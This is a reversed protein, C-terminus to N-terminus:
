GSSGGNDDKSELGSGSEEVLCPKAQHRNRGVIQLVVIGCAASLVSGALIGLKSAIMMEPSTFSLGSVFLSMTFGIGGLIAAGLMDKWEVSEPLSAMNLSVALAAFLMIGVPKGIFLGLAIGMTVPDTLSEVIPLGRVVLGANGLAFLPLIVFAVWPHISHEMRQLPTEVKECALKMDHVTDQYDPDMLISYWACVQMKPGKVRQMIRKVQNFFFEFDVKGRAPIMMAAAVGAVTPHVGSHFVALWLLFGLIAYPATSSVRFFNVVGMAILVCGALALALGNLESTYFLAIIVVAGLDDAIAFAALFIRLGVPLGKGLLALAGLAFAIDTAMPIAWGTMAPTGQNFLAYIFGPVIMGGLAAVVPLFAVRFVSLEGVLVERKIELGVLFFFFAMLGDNVWHLVSHPHCHQGLCISLTTHWFHHYTTSLFSNAWVLAGGTTALLLISSAIELRLFRQMPSILVDSFLLERTTCFEQETSRQSM